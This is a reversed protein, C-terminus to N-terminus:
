GPGLRGAVPAASPQWEQRKYTLEEGNGIPVTVTELWRDARLRALFDAMEGAHSVANDTILLGGPRLLGLLPGYYDLYRPRDADLFILDFSGTLTGIVDLADGEHVTVQESLGARELNARVMAAKDAAREVTVLHGRTNAAAWALWITSYGNSAGIELIRRANIARVLISLFLGTEPTINLMRRPRETERADNERGFAELEDLLTQLSPEM